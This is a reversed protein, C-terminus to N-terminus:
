LGRILKELNISRDELEKLLKDERFGQGYLISTLVERVKNFKNFEELCLKKTKTM